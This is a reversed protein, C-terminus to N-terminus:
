DTSDYAATVQQFFSWVDEVCQFPQEEYKSRESWIRQASRKSIGYRQAARVQAEGLKVGKGYLEHVFHMIRRRTDVDTIRPPGAPPPNAAVQDRM